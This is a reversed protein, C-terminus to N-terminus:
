KVRAVVEAVLLRSKVTQYFREAPYENEDDDVVGSEEEEEEEEEVQRPLSRTLEKGGIHVDANLVSVSTHPGSGFGRRQLRLLVDELQSSAACFSVQLYDQGLSPQWTCHRVGLDRLAHRLREELTLSQVFEVHDDGNKDQPSDAEASEKSSSSGAGAEHVLLSQDTEDNVDRPVVDEDEKFLIEKKETKSTPLWILM